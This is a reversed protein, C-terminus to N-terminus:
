LASIKEQLMEIIDYLYSPIASTDTDIVFFKVTDDQQLQILFGGQDHCDPCGFVNVTDTYLEEPVFAPLDAVSDYLTDSLLVYEGSYPLTGVGPYQDITDEYLKGDQLLFIQVCESGLCEGYYRGFMFYDAQTDPTDPITDEEKHCSTISLFIISFLLYLKGTNM